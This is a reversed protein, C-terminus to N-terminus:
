HVQAVPPNPQAGRPLRIDPHAIGCMFQLLPHGAAQWRAEASQVQLHMVRHPLGSVHAMSYTENPTWVDEFLLRQYQRDIPTRGTIVMHQVGGLRCHLYFAKFLAAKVLRGGEGQALGLRTAEALCAHALHPPLTMSRELDLPRHRNTQIRLTGLPTGDLKSRALLVLAGEEADAPEPDGLTQAFTPLHRAYASQRVRVADRLEAADAVASVTFPLWEQRVAPDVRPAFPAPLHFNLVDTSSATM